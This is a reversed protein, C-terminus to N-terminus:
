KTKLKVSVYIDVESLDGLQSKEGYVEFDYSYQRQLTDNNKWIYTWQDIVAQPLAGKATFIEFNDPLFTRRMLGNPINELSNVICGLIVTYEDTFDSKYDTYLSIINASVKNPIKEIIHDNFFREWLIGIDKAAQHHQNTTRIALGIISFGNTLNM